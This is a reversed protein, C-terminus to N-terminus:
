KEELPFTSSGSLKFCLYVVREWMTRPPASAAPASWVGAAMPVSSPDPQSALAEMQDRTMLEAEWLLFDNYMAISKINTNKQLHVWQKASEDGKGLEKFIKQQYLFKYAAKPIKMRYFLLDRGYVYEKHGKGWNSRDLCDAPSARLSIYNQTGYFPPVESKGVGARGYFDDINKKKNDFYGYLYIVEGADTQVATCSPRNMGARIDADPYASTGGPKAPISPEVWFHENDGMDVEIVKGTVPAAAQYGGQSGGQAHAAFLGQGQGQGHAQFANFSSGGKARTEATSQPPPMSHFKEGGFSM